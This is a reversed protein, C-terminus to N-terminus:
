LDFCQKLSARFDCLVGTKYTTEWDIVTWKKAVSEKPITWYFATGDKHNELFDQIGDREAYTLESWRLEMSQRETNQGFGSRQSYGDGFEAELRNLATKITIPADPTPNPNFTETM